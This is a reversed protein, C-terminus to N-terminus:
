SEVISEPPREGTIPDAHRHVIRWGDDERRFVNTARLASPAAEDAGGVKVMCREIELEYALDNTAHMAICEVSFADGDRLLSAAREMTARVADWGLAPPGLPNALSVDDRKSWLKAVPEPDGQVFAELARHYQARVDDLDAM